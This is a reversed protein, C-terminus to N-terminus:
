PDGRNLHGRKAQALGSSLPCSRFVSPAFILPLRARHLSATESIGVFYSDKVSCCM